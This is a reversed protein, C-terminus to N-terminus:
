HAYPSHTLLLVERVLVIEALQLSIVQWVPQPLIGRRQQSQVFEVSVTWKGKRRRNELQLEGSTMSAASLRGICFSEWLKKAERSHFQLDTTADQGSCSIM